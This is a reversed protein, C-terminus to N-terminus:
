WRVKRKSTSTGDVEILILEIDGTFTGATVLFDAQTGTAVFTYWVDPHNSNNNGTQCGVVGIWNDVADVTTGNVCTGDPTVTIAGSCEDNAPQAFAIQSSIITTICIAVFHYLLNNKM